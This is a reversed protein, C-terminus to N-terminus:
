SPGVYIRWRVGLCCCKVLLFEQLAGLATETNDERNIICEVLKVMTYADRTQCIGILGITFGAEDTVWWFTWIIRSGRHFQAGVCCEVGFGMCNPEQRGRKNSVTHSTSGASPGIHTLLHSRESAKWRHQRCGSSMCVKEYMAGGVGRRGWVGGRYQGIDNFVHEWWQYLGFHCWEKIVGIIHRCKVLDEWVTDVQLRWAWDGVGGFTCFTDYIISHLLYFWIRNIHSVLPDSIPYMLTLKVYVQVSNSIIPYVVEGLM